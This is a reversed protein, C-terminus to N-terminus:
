CYCFCYSFQYRLVIVVSTHKHTHTHKYVHTHTHTRTHIHAHTHTHTCVHMCTHTHTYTSRMYMCIYLTLMYIDDYQINLRVLIAYKIDYRGFLKKDVKAYLMVHAAHKRVGDTIRVAEDRSVEQYTSLVDASAMM